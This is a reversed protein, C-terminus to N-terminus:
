GIYHKYRFPREGSLQAISLLLQWNKLRPWNWRRVASKTGGTKVYIVCAVRCVNWIHPWGSAQLGEKIKSYWIYIITDWVTTWTTRASFKFKFKFKQYPDMWTSEQLGELNINRIYCWIITDWVTCQGTDLTDKCLIQFSLSRAIWLEDSGFSIEFISWVSPSM